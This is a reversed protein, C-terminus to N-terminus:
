GRTWLKLNTFSTMTPPETTEIEFSFSASTSITKIKKEAIVKDENMFLFYFEVWRSSGQSLWDFNLKGEVEYRLKGVKKVTYQIYQEDEGVGCEVEENFGM